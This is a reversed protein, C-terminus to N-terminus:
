YWCDMFDVSLYCDGDDTGFSGSIEFTSVGPPCEVFGFGRLAEFDAWGSIDGENGMVTVSNKTCDIVLEEGPELTGAWRFEDQVAGYSIRRITLDSVVGGAGFDLPPTDDLLVGEGIVWGMSRAGITIVPRAAHTGYNTATYTSGNVAQAELKMGPLVYGDDMFLGDDLYITGDCHWGDDMSLGSDLFCPAYNGQWVPVNVQFSASLKQRQHVQDRANEPDDLNNFRAKCFRKGYHIDDPRAFLLQKGWGAMAQAQERLIQTTERASLDAFLWWEAQVNGVPQPARRDGYEDFGGDVGALRTTATVLNKFNDRESSQAPFEYTGYNGAFKVLQM